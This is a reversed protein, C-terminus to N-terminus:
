GHLRDEPGVRRQKLNEIYRSVALPRNQNEPMFDMIERIRNNCTAANGRLEDLNKGHAAYGPVGLQKLGELDISWSQLTNLCRHYSMRANQFEREKQYDYYILVSCSTTVVSIAILLPLWYQRIDAMLQSVERSVDPSLLSPRRKRDPGVNGKGPLKKATTHQCYDKADLLFEDMGMAEAHSEPFRNQRILSDIQNISKATANM